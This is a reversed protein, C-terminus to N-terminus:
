REAACSSVAVSRRLLFSREIFSSLTTWPRLLSSWLMNLTQEGGVVAVKALWQVGRLLSLLTRCRMRRLCGSTWVWIDYSRRGRESVLLLLLSNRLEL